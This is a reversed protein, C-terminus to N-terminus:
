FWDNGYPDISMVIINTGDLTVIEVAPEEYTKM